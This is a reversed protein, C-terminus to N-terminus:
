QFQRRLEALSVAQRTVLSQQAALTLLSSELLDEPRMPAATGGLLSQLVAELLAAQGKDQVHRPCSEHRDGRYFEAQQYDDLVGAGQGAFCEFREKGLGPAGQASYILQGVSGNAFRVTAAFNATALLDARGEGCPEASVSETPAGAMFRLFDFFHCAEGL